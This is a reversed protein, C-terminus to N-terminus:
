IMRPMHGAHMCPQTRTEVSLQRSCRVPRFPAGPQPLERAHHRTDLLSLHCLRQMLMPLAWRQQLVPKGLVDDM